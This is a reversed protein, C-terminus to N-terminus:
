FCYVFDGRVTAPMASVVGHGAGGLVHSGTHYDPEARFPSIVVAESGGVM